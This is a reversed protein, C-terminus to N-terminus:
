RAAAAAGATRDWSLALTLELRAHVEYGPDILDRPLTDIIGGPLITVATM